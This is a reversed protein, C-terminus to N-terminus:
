GDFCSVWVNVDGGQQTGSSDTWAYGYGAWANGNVPYSAAGDSSGGTAVKGAPCTATAFGPDTGNCYGFSSVHCTRAGRAQVIQHGTLGGGGGGNCAYTIGNAATFKSGGNACNSGAPEVASSVSVGDRGDAGNTGNTGNVGDKGDVGRQNWSVETELTSCHSMVNTSPLTKDILRVTGVNKLMCATYVNGNDPIAAYTIGAAALAVIAAGVLMSKRGIKM